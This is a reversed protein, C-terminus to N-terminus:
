TLIFDQAYDWYSRAHQGISAIEEPSLERVVKAPSGLVLSGAPIRKNQTILAGAGIICNEEVVAENLVIAGMGVLVYDKIRCGHLIARHGVTVFNGLVTDMGHDVHVVSGDQINVYEGLRIAAVDGRLVSQHWISCYRGLYAQGIIDASPAIYCPEQIIPKYSKLTYLM